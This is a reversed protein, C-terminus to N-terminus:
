NLDLKNYVYFVDDDTIEQNLDLENYVYFVDGDSVRQRRRLEMQLLRIM